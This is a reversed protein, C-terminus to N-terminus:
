WRAGGGVGGGVLYPETDYPAFAGSDELRAAFLAGLRAIRRIESYEKLALMDFRGTRRILPDDFYDFLVGGKQIHDCNYGRFFDPLQGDVCPAGRYPRAARGDLFFPVHASAMVADLVDRKDAFQEVPVQEFRPLRTVVVQLGGGNCRAAADDPLLEDLWAEIIRGWVGVLGLPREWVGHELSLRYASETIAEADVGCRALAALLAGGSAGAQPVRTLDYRRALYDMAGLQWWFYIGSGAWHVRFPRKLAAATPGANAAAAAANAASVAAAVDTHPSPIYIQSSSSGKSDATADDTQLIL